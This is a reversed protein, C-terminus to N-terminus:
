SLEVSYHMGQFLFAIRRLNLLGEANAKGSFGLLYCSFTVQRNEPLTPPQGFIQKFRVEAKAVGDSQKSLWEKLSTIFESNTLCRSLRGINALLPVVWINDM